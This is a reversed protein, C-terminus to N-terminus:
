CYAFILDYSLMDKGIRYMVYVMWITQSISVPM